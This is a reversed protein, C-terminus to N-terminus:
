RWLTAARFVILELIRMKGTGNEGRGEHGVGRAQNVRREAHSEGTDMTLAADGAHDHIAEIQVSILM